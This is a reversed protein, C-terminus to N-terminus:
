RTATMPSCRFKRLRGTARRAVRSASWARDKSAHRATRPRWVALSGCINRMLQAGLRGFDTAYAIWGGQKFALLLNNARTLEWAHPSASGLGHAYATSVVGVKWGAQRARWGFDVDEAYSGLREDFPGIARACETRVIMCQGSLWAVDILADVTEGAELARHVSVPINSSHPVYPGCIGLAPDARLALVCRSLTDPDVNLDHSALVFVDAEPSRIAVDRTALNAAGTYGLNRGSELVTVSRPLADALEASLTPSNNVVTVALEIKQSALVSRVAVACWQPANWHIVYVPIQTMVASAM